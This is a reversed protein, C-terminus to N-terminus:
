GRRRRGLARSITDTSALRLRRKTFEPEICTQIQQLTLGTPPRGDPPFVTSLVQLVRTQQSVRGPKHATATECAEARIREGSVVHASLQEIIKAAPLAVQNV